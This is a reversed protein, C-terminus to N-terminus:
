HLISHSHEIPCITDALSTMSVESSSESHPTITGKLDVMQLWEALGARVRAGAKSVKGYQARGTVAQNM